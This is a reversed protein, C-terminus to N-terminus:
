NIFDGTFKKEKFFTSFLSLISVNTVNYEHIVVGVKLVSVHQDICHYVVNLMVLVHILRQVHTWVSETLAHKHLQVNQILQANQRLLKNM